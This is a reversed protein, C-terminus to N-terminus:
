ILGLSQKWRLIRLCSADIQAQQLTGNEVAACIADVSAAYKAYCLMDNGAAVALVAPNAGSTFQGIAGMGLDDTIVVGGFGLTDRLVRHVAPSLSAPYGSDMCRVINHSVMVADAGAAIGAQFPLLDRQEFESYARNDYAIGKHTDVSGGYGPFHKLTTGIGRSQMQPVIKGIYDSTETADLSFTRKYIYDSETLAVDCVPALNVNIGLELLLAAKEDADRLVLEMGGATYLERASRFPASRLQPNVSVRNVTGGEEDVAILLAVTSSESQVEDIMQRVQAKTKGQFAAAFLVLGGAGARAAAKAQAANECSALMMQAAKERLTMGELIQEPTRKRPPLTETHREMSSTPAATLPLSSVSVTVAATQSLEPVFATASPAPCASREIYATDPSVASVATQTSSEARSCVMTTFDASRATEEASFATQSPQTSLPEVSLSDRDGCGVPLLALIGLCLAAAARFRECMPMRREAASVTFTRESLRIALTM